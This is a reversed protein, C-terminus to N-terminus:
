AASLAIDAAYKPVFARRYESPSMGVLARFRRTFASQDPYGCAHAVEVIPADGSLRELAAELRIKTLYRKPPIGFVAFFDRKLQWSSLGVRRALDGIDCPAYFHAQLHELAASLKEYGAHNRREADLLRALAAVGVVAGMEDCVPWRTTLLWAKSGSMSICLELQDRLPVRTRMVYRDLTEHRLRVIEPFLDRATKGLVEMRSSAKSLEAMASNAMVYRLANDKVYFATTPLWEFLAKSSALATLSLNVVTPAVLGAAAGEWGM